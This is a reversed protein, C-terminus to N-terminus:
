LQDTEQIFSELIMGLAGVILEGSTTSLQLPHGDNSGASQDFVFSGNTDLYVTDQQVGNIFYKNGSGTSVVTVTYTTM